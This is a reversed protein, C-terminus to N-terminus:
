NVENPIFNGKYIHSLLQKFIYVDKINNETNLLQVGNCYICNLDTTLEYSIGNKILLGLKHRFMTKSEKLM